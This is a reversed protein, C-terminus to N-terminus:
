TPEERAKGDTGFASAVGETKGESQSPSREGQPSATGPVIGAAHREELRELAMEFGKVVTRGLSEIVAELRESEADVEGETSARGRRRPAGSRDEHLRRILSEDCYDEVKALLEEERKQLATMPLMILLSAVLAVLTTDFAEGLGSTVGGLAAKIQALALAYNGEDASGAQDLAGSFGGVAEGLGLVTGIFGLIPIAWVVAKVVTFSGEVAMWDSESQKNLRDVVESVRRRARFHKLASDIRRVLPHSWYLESTASRQLRLEHLFKKANDPTILEGLGRPLLDLRLIRGERWLKVAKLSLFVATWITFAVITYSVWGRTFLEVVRPDELRSVVVRYFVATLVVAAAAAFSMSATSLPRGLAVLLPSSRPRSTEESESRVRPRRRHGIGASSDPLEFRFEQPCLPCKITKGRHSEDIRLRHRCRPCRVTVKM